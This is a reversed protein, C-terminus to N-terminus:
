AAVERTRVGFDVAEYETIARPLVNLADALAHLQDVTGRRQSAEVRTIVTRDVGSRRSLETITLRSGQRIARLADGNIKVHAM